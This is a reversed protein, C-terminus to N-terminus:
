YCPVNRNATSFEDAPGNLSAALAELAQCSAENDEAFIQGSAIAEWCRKLDDMLEWQFQRDARVRHSAVRILPMSGARKCVLEEIGLVADRSGVPLGELWAYISLQSM